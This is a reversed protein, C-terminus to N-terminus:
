VVDLIVEIDAAHLAKVLTRFEDLQGVPEPHAAYTHHLAFFNLPMYGWYNGEQPDFQFVPMLEVATVGLDRM